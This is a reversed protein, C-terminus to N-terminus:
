EKNSEKEEDEVEKLIRKAKKKPNPARENERVYFRRLLMICESRLEKVVHCELKPITEPLYPGNHVSLVSGCGGFRENGCGYYVRGIGLHRLAAACMVCPEVTVYLEFESWKLNKSAELGIERHLRELAVLEAHKTGNKDENTRNRGWSIIKSNTPDYIVCGIPVEAAAFAEQAQLICIIIINSFVLRNVQEIALAMNKKIREEQEM